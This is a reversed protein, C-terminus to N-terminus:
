LICSTITVLSAFSEFRAGCSTGHGSYSMNTEEECGIKSTPAALMSFTSRGATVTCTRVILKDSLFEVSRGVSHLQRKQISRM